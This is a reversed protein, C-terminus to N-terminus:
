FDLGDHCGVAWALAWLAEVQWQMANNQAATTKTKLYIGEEVTLADALDEQHLWQLAKEKPFGYSTAVVTHLSLLRRGVDAIGRLGLVEDLAPLNVNVPYNLRRAEALSQDRVNKTMKTAAM